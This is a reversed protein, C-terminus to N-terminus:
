VEPAAAIIQDKWGGRRFSVIRFANENYVISFVKGNAWIDLGYPMEQKDLYRLAMTTLRLPGPATEV